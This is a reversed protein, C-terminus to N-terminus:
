LRDRIEALIRTQDEMDEHLTDLKEGHGELTEGYGELAQTQRDLKEGYGELTQTQRDLKEGHGELTQTQRDLKGGHGGLMETQRDLKEGNAEVGDAVREVQGKTANILLAIVGTAVSAVTGFSVLVEGADNWWGRYEGVLGIVVMLLGLASLLWMLRELRDLDVRPRPDRAPM